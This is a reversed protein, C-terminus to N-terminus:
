ANVVGQKRIPAVGDSIMDLQKTDQGFLTAKGNNKGLWATKAYPKVASVKSTADVVVKVEEREEDPTFTFKLTITRKATASTNQDFINASIKELEHAFLEKAVGDAINDLNIAKM